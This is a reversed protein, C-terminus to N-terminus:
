LQGLHWKGIIATPQAYFQELRAGTAALKDLNPTKIDTAGNFGVDKWRLDDAVIYVINTKQSQRAAADSAPDAAHTVAPMWLAVPSVFCLLKSLLRNM